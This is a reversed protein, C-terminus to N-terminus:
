RGHQNYCTKSVCWHSWLIQIYDVGNHPLFGVVMISHLSM